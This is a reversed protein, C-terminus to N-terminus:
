ADEWRSHDNNWQMLVLGEISVKEELGAYGIDVWVTKRNVKTIEGFRYKSNSRRVNDGIKM